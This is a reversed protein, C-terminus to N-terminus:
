SAAWRPPRVWRAGRCCTTSSASARGAPQRLRQRDDAAPPRADRLQLGEGGAQARLPGPQLQVHVDERQVAGVPRVGRPHGRRTRRSGRRAGPGAAVRSDPRRRAAGGLRGHLLAAVRGPHARLLGAPVGGHRGHGARRRPARGGRRDAAARPRPGRRRSQGSRDRGRDRRDDVRQAARGVAHWLRGHCPGFGGVAASGTADRIRFARETDGELQPQRREHARQGLGASGVLPALGTGRRAVALM